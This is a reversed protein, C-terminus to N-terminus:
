LDKQSGRMKGKNIDSLLFCGFRVKKKLPCKLDPKYSNERYFTEFIGGISLVNWNKNFHCNHPFYFNFALMKAFPSTTGPGIISAQLWIILSLSLSLSLSIIDLLCSFSISPFNPM